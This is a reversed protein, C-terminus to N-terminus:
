ALASDDKPPLPKTFDIEFTRLAEFHKIIKNRAGMFSAETATATHIAISLEGYTELLTPFRSKFDDPLLKKYEEGMIDGSFRTTNAATHVTDFSLWYQEIFVRLMFIACLHQGSQHAIVASSFHDRHKKPIETPVSVIQMPERGCITLKDKSRHILFTIPRDKCAQCQYQIVFDQETVPYNFHFGHTTPLDCRVPNFPENEKCVACTTRITPLEFEIALVPANKSEPFIAHRKLRPEPVTPHWPLDLVQHGKKIIEDLTIPTQPSAHAFEALMILAEEEADELVGELLKKAKERIKDTAPRVIQYLHKNSLLDSFAGQVSIKVASLFLLEYSM